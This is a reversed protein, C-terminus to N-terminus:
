LFVAQLLIGHYLKVFVRKEGVLYYYRSGFQCINLRRLELGKVVSSFCCTTYTALERLDKGPGDIKLGIKGLEAGDM